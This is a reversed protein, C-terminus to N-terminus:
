SRATDPEMMGRVVSGEFESALCEMYIDDWQRGGMGYSQRRRGFARFGAKEYARIGAHNFAAVVLMVNRLGLGSFAYDLMLRTAETGFGRGRCDPEGLVIAYEATGDRLDISDWWTLGIPRWTEKQYVTFWTASEDKAAGEYEAAVQDLTRPKPTTGRTRCDEFANEWRYYTPALDARLPGLAVRPGEINVVLPGDALDEEPPDDQEHEPPGVYM